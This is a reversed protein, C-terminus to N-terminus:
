LEAGHLRMPRDHDDRGPRDVLEVLGGGLRLGLQSGLEGPARTLPQRHDGDAVGGHARQRGLAARALQERAGAHRVREADLPDGAAGVRHGRDGV